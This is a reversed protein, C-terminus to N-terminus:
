DARVALGEIIEGGLLQVRGYRSHPATTVPEFERALIRLASTWGAHGAGFGPCIDVDAM